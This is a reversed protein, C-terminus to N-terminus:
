PYEPHLFMHYQPNEAFYSSDGSVTMENLPLWCNRPEGLHGTIPLNKSIIFNIVPEIAPDDIM